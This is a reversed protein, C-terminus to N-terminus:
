RIPIENADQIDAGSGIMCKGWSCDLDSLLEGIGERYRNPLRLETLTDLAM